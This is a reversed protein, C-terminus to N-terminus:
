SSQQMVGLLWNAYSQQPDTNSSPTQVGTGNTQPANVRPRESTGFFEPAEERVAEVVEDLGSVNGESDVELASTDALRMAGKLREPNIGADRLSDRLAFERLTNTFREEAASAREEAKARAKEAKDAAGEEAERRSQHETYATLVDDISEAGTQELLKGIARKEAEKAREGAIKNVDKQSFAQESTAETAQQSNEAPAQQQPAAETM